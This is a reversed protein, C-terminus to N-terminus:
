AAKPALPVVLLSAAPRSARRRDDSTGAGHEPNNKREIGQCDVHWRIPRRRAPFSADSPETAAWALPVLGDLPCSVRLQRSRASSTSSGEAMVKERCTGPM